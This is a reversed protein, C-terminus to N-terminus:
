SEAHPGSHGRRARPTLTKLLLMLSNVQSASSQTQGAPLPKTNSVINCTVTSSHMQEGPPDVPWRGGPPGLLDLRGCQHGTQDQTHSEGMLWRKAGKRSQCDTFRPLPLSPSPPARGVPASPEIGPFPGLSPQNQTDVQPSVPSGSSVYNRPTDTLTNRSPILMQILSQTVSIARGTPAPVM